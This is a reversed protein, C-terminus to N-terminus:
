WRVWEKMHQEKAGGALTTHNGSTRVPFSIGLASSPGSPLPCPLPLAPTHALGAQSLAPSNM